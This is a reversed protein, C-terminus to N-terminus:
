RITCRLVFREGPDRTRTLFRGDTVYIFYSIYLFLYIHQENEAVSLLISQVPAKPKSVEWSVPSSRVQKQEDEQREEGATAGCM